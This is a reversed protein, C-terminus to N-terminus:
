YNQTPPLALAIGGMKKSKNCTPFPKPLKLDKHPAQLQEHWREATQVRGASRTVRGVRPPFEKNKVSSCLSM